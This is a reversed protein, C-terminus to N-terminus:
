QPSPGRRTVGKLPPQCGFSIFFTASNLFVTSLRPRLAVFPWWKATTLEASADNYYKRATIIIIIIITMNCSSIHIFEAECDLQAGVAVVDAIVDRQPWTTRRAVRIVHQVCHVATAAVPATLTTRQRAVVDLQRGTGIVVRVVAFWIMADHYNANM